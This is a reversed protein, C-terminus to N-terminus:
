EIYEEKIGGFIVIDRTAMASYQPEHQTSWIYDGGLGKESDSSDLVSDVVMHLYLSANQTVSISDQM